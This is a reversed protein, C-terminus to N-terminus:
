CFVLSIISIQLASFGRSKETEFFPFEAEIAAVETWSKKGKEMDKEFCLSDALKPLRNALM